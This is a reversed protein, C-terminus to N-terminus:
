LNSVWLTIFYILKSVENGSNFLFKPLCGYLFSTEVSIKFEFVKTQSSIVCQFDPHSFVSLFYPISLVVKLSFTWSFCTEFYLEEKEQHIHAKQSLRKFCSDKSARGYQSALIKLGPRVIPNPPCSPFYHATRMLLTCQPNGNRDVGQETWNLQMRDATSKILLSISLIFIRLKLM